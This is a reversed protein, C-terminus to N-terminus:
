KNELKSSLSKTTDPRSTLETFFIKIKSLKEGEKVLM